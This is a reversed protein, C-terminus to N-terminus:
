DAHRGGERAKKFRFGMDPSQFHDPSFVCSKKTGRDLPEMPFDKEATRKEAKKIVQRSLQGVL